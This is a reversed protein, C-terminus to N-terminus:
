QHDEGPEQETTDETAGQKLEELLEGRLRDCLEQYAEEGLQQELSDNAVTAKVEDLQKSVEEIEERLSKVCDRMTLMGILLCPLVICAMFGVKDTLLSLISAIVNGEKTYYVTQGILNAQEVLYGDAYRNADGKTELFIKGESDEYRQTVRHTIVVGLMGSEKSRFNVIDGVEIETIDTERSIILAGVPIEPEMSGTVVRFLSYGGVSVYGKSLVQSLVGVCLLIAVALVCSVVVTVLNNKEPMQDAEMGEDSETPELDKEMPEEGNVRPQEGSPIENESQETLIEEIDIIEDM